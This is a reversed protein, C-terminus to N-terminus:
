ASDETPTHVTGSPRPYAPATMSLYKAAYEPDSPPHFEADHERTRFAALSVFLDGERRSRAVRFLYGRRALNSLRNGAATLELATENAFRSATVQGGLHDLVGLSSKETPTLRGAPYAHSVHVVSPTVYMPLDETEAFMRVVRAVNDRATAVVVVVDGFKGARIEDAVSTLTNVLVDTTFEAPGLDLVLVGPGAGWPRSAAVHRVSRPVSSVNVVDGGTAVTHVYLRPFTGAQM